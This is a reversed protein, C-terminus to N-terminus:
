SVERLADILLKKPPVGENGYMRCCLAFDTQERAAPEIDLGDVRISPSGIFRLAEADDPTEVAVERLEAMLGLEGLVERTLDVTPPFNPCGDFYLIEILMPQRFLISARPANLM